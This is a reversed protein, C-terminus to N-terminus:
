CHSPKFYWRVCPEWEVPFVPFITFLLELCPFFLSNLFKPFVCHIQFSSSLFEVPLFYHCFFKNHPMSSNTINSTKFIKKNRLYELFVSFFVCPFYVCLVPFKTQWASHSGHWSSILNDKCLLVESIWGETLWSEANDLSWQHRGVKPSVISTFIALLRRGIPVRRSTVRQIGCPESLCPEVPLVRFSLSLVTTSTVITLPVSHSVPTM